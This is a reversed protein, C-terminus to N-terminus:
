VYAYAVLTIGCVDGLTFHKQQISLGLLRHFKTFNSNPSLNDTSLIALFKFFAIAIFTMFLWQSYYKAPATCILSM